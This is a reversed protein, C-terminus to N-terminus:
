GDGGISPIGDGSRNSTPCCYPVWASTRSSQAQAASIRWRRTGRPYRRCALAIVRVQRSRKRVVVHSPSSGSEVLGELAVRTDEASQFRKASNKELCRRVVRSVPAPMQQSVDSPAPPDDNVIASMTEAPTPRDFARRGTLLEYLVTGLAFIDTRSDTAEGRVQEPSMYGVTGLILGPETHELLGTPEDAGPALSRNLRALGFNLLKVRGDKTIFVNAPKIDRHVIDKEHAAALGWAVAACVELSERLRMPGRRLRDRLTEGELLETVIYPWGDQLGIHFVSLINPHSLAAAAQAELGLSSSPRSRWFFSPALNQRRSM